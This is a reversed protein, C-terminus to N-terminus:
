SHAAAFGSLEAIEVAASFAGAIEVNKNGDILGMRRAMVHRSGNIFEDLASAGSGDIL